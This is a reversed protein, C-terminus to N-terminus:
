LGIRRSNPARIPVTLVPVFNEVVAAEPLKKWFLGYIPYFDVEKRTVKKRRSFDSTGSNSVEWFKGRNDTQPLFKKSSSQNKSVSSKTVARPPYAVNELGSILAILSNLMLIRNHVLLIYLSHLPSDQIREVSIISSQNM